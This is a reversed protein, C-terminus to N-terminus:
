NYKTTGNNTRATINVNFVSGQIKPIRFRSKELRKYWLCFGNRDWYLIKIKDGRKNAFVFLHGSLANQNLTEQVLLSLGDVSKRMDARETAIYIRTNPALMLM